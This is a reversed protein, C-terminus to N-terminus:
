KKILPISEVLYIPYNLAFKIVVSGQEGSGQFDHNIPSIM